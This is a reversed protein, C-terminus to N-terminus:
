VTKVISLRLFDQVGALRLASKLIGPFAKLGSEPDVFKPDALRYDHNKWRVSCGGQALVNAGWDVKRGYTLAIVFGNEVPEAIVPIRYRRGTRRGTHTLITFHGFSRGAIRILIKNTVYKNFVRVRDRIWQKVSM